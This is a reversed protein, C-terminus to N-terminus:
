IFVEEEHYPNIMDSYEGDDDENDDESLPFLGSVKSRNPSEAVYTEQKIPLGSTRLLYCAYSFADGADPSRRIRKKMEHKPEVDNINSGKNIILRKFLDSAYDSMINFGCVCKGSIVERTGLWYESVMKGYRDDNSNGQSSLGTIQVDSGRREKWESEIAQMMLGGDNSIDCGFDTPETSRNICYNVIEHAVAKRFEKSEEVNPSINYTKSDLVIQINGLYDYGHTIFFISTKDGGSTFAFDGGCFVRTRGGGMWPKPERDAEFYKIYQESLVTNLSDDGAWFGIGFRWYDLTKKGLEIDGNGAERAIEERDFRNSLYPFPIKSKENLHSVFPHENPSDEGHLFLVTKGKRSVWKCGEKNSLSGWGSIPECLVGHPDSKTNANGIGIFQYFPNSRLNLNPKDVNDMMAPLEDIIWIVSKNKSGMITALASEGKSDNSIPIVTVSNRLDRENIKANNLSKGEDFTLTKQYEIIEGIPAPAGKSDVYGHLEWKAARHLDKIDGWIRRESASGSTTSAMVLTDDPSCYFNVNAFVSIGYTKAASAPGTLLLDRFQCAEYVVDLFYNNWVRGKPTDAYLEVKEKWLMRVIRLFHEFASLFEKRKFGKRARYFGRLDKTLQSTGAPWKIGFDNPLENLHFDKWRDHAARM